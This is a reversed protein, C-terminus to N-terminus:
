ISTQHREPEAWTTEKTVTNHWYTNGSIEDLCEAWVDLPGSSADREEAGENGTEDAADTTDIVDDAAIVSAASGTSERKEKQSKLRSVLRRSSDTRAIEHVVSGNSGRVGVSLRQDSTSVASPRQDVTMGRALRGQLPNERGFPARSNRQMESSYSDEDFGDVDDDVGEDEEDIGAIEGQEEWDVGELPSSYYQLEHSGIDKEYGVPTDLSLPFPSGQIAVHRTADAVSLDNADSREQAKDIMERVTVDWNRERRLKAKIDQHEELSLKRSHAVATLKSPDVVIAAFIRDPRLYYSGDPNQISIDEFAKKSVM